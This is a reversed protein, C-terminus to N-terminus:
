HRLFVNYKCRMLQPTCRYHVGDADSERLLLIDSAGKRSNGFMSTRSPGSFLNVLRWSSGGRRKTQGGSAIQSSKVQNLEDGAKKGNLLKTKPTESTNASRLRDRSRAAAIAIAQSRRAASTSTGTTRHRDDSSRRRNLDAVSTDTDFSGSRVDPEFEIAESPPTFGRRSCPFSLPSVHFLTIAAFVFGCSPACFPSVYYHQVKCTPSPPKTRMM